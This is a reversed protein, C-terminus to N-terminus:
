NGTELKAKGIVRVSDGENLLLMGETVVAEGKLADPNRIEVVKQWALGLDVPVAAVKEGRVVFAVNTGGRIGVATAPLAPAEYQRFVVWADRIMGPALDPTREVTVRIEFTRTVPHVSPAKYTVPVEKGNDFRVQTQGVIVRDYCDASLSYSVEYIRPDDMAFVSHGVGAFDGKDLLKRTIIGDFPAVGLSDSLTKRAVALATEAQAIRTRASVAAAQAREDSAAAIKRQLDAKEWTDKTVAKADRFLTSMRKADVEAKDLAAQAETQAAEAERLLAKAVNLDDQAMHVRNELNVKDIQFLPQGAKVTAGEEVLVADITGPVRAAVEASFKTRVTGQVRAGDMFPFSPRLAGVKVLPRLDAESEAATQAKRCGGAAVAIAAAGIWIMTRSM